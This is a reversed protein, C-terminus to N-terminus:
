LRVRKSKRDKMNVIILGTIVLVGGFVFLMTIEDGLCLYTIITSLVPIAYLYISVESATKIELAIYWLVYGIVTSCVGLFIVAIWSDISM